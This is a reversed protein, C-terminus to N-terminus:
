KHKFLAFLPNLGEVSIEEYSNELINDILTHEQSKQILIYKADSKGVSEVIKPTLSKSFYSYWGQLSFFRCCPTIGNHLYISPHVNYCLLENKDEGIYDLVLPDYSETLLSEKDNIHGLAQNFQFVGNLFLVFLVFVGSYKGIAYVYRRSKVIKLLNQYEFTMIVFYPIAIISYHEYKFTCMFYYGTIFTIFTWMLHYWKYKNDIVSLFVSVIMLGYTSIYALGISIIVYFTLTGNYTHNIYDFNFLLSAYLMEYLADNMYFYLWCPVVIILFGSIFGLVNHWINKWQGNWALYVFICFAGMCIGIADTLRNSMCLGLVAGYLLANQPSHLTLKQKAKDAWRWIHIFALIHFPLEYVEITNGCCVLQSLSCSTVFFLLWTTKLSYVERYWKFLLVYSFFFFVIQLIFLGYKNGTLWYGIANIFYIYPGKQDWLDVYPLKGETWGKGIIEFITGDLSYYYDYLFSSSSIISVFLITYLFIVLYDIKNMKKFICKSSM